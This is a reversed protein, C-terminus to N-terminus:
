PEATAKFQPKGIVGPPSSGAWETTRKRVTPINSSCKRTPQKQKRRTTPPWFFNPWDSEPPFITRTLRRGGQAIHRDGRQNKGEAARVVGLYYPWRFTGSQLLDSRQYFVAALNFQDFAHFTMALRGNAEVDNPFELVKAYAQQLKPELVERQRPLLEPIPPLDQARLESSVLLFFVAPAAWRGM